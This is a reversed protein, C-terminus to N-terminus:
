AHSVFLPSYGGSSRAFVRKGSIGPCLGALTENILSDGRQIEFAQDDDLPAVDTETVSVFVSNAGKNQITIATADGDTIEIYDTSLKITTNKPM